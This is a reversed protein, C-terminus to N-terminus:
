RRRKVWTNKRGNWVYMSEYFLRKRDCCLSCFDGNRTILSVSMLESGFYFEIRGQGKVRAGEALIIKSSTWNIDFQTRVDNLRRRNLAHNTEGTGLRAIVFIKEKTTNALAGLNAINITNQQCGQANAAVIDPEAQPDPEQGHSAGVFACIMGAALVFRIIASFWILPM